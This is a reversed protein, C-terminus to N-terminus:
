WDTSCITCSQTTLLWWCKIKTTGFCWVSNLQGWELSPGDDFHLCNLETQYKPVVFIVATLLGSFKALRTMLGVNVGHENGSAFRFLYLHGAHFFARGKGIQTTRLSMPSTVYIPFLKYLLDYTTIPLFEAHTSDVFCWAKYIRCVSFEQTSVVHFWSTPLLWSWHNGHWCRFLFDLKTGPHCIVNEKWSLPAICM